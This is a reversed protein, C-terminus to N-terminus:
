DLKVFLLDEYFTALTFMSGILEELPSNAWYVMDRYRLSLPANGYSDSCTM